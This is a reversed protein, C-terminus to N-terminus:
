GTEAGLVTIEPWLTKWRSAKADYNAASFNSTYNPRVMM